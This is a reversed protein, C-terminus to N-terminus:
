GSPQPSLIMRCDAVLCGRDPPLVKVPNIDLEQIDPLDCILRSVRQVIRALAECDGPPQGRVGRLLPAGRIEALMKGAEASSVPAVRHVIDGFVEVFVGGLGFLVVPGFTHDQKGGVFAEHGAPVMKQVLVGDREAGPETERMLRVLHEYGRRVADEGHLDLLVGGVDSKHTFGEGMVKMAVPFELDTARVAAEDASAAVAWPAVPIEYCALVRFAEATTLQRSGRARASAVVAGAQLSDATSTSTEALGPAAPAHFDRSVALARVAEEPDTFMPFNPQRSRCWEEESAVVCLAVPKRAQRCADRIAAVLGPSDEQFLVQVVLLGDIDDRALTDSVIQGFLDFDYLDGLDLPNDLRIVGARLQSQVMRLFEEPFPPLVFGHKAAADAAIVAHGGSRSVIALRSGRMPPLCHAKIAQLAAHMTGVRHIGCQRFAADVVEESASLAGTHSSAIRTSEESTYSKHVLIPKSSRSAIDLLRRGDAIGELYLFVTETEDDELLYELLDNEDTNLKNGISAFKSFGLYESALANLMAAGVGGSQALIAVSGYHFTDRFPLFPLALGNEKNIIGFCNPGIFRIGHTRAAAAVEADLSRREDGLESFGGSEIVMRKIGKQGCSEVIGPLTEAPTLVVALDVTDPIEQISRYIRHGMFVGGRPGVLYVRGTYAFEVLHYVITRGLNTPSPSVGVVAVSEPYFFGKV